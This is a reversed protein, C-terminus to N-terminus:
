LRTKQEVVDETSMKEADNILKRLAVQIEQQLSIYDEYVEGEYPLEPNHKNKLHHTIHWRTVCLTEYFSALRDFWLKRHKEDVSSPELFFAESAEINKKTVNEITTNIDKIYHHILQYSRRQSSSLESVVEKYYNDFIYSGVPLPMTGSHLMHINMTLKQRCIAIASELSIDIDALEELLAKKIRHKCYRHKLYLVLQGFLLAVVASILAIILKENALLHNVDM